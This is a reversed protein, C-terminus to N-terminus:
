LQEEARARAAAEQEARIQSLQRYRVLDEAYQRKVKDRADMKLLLQRQTAAIKEESYEIQQALGGPVNVGNDLYRTKATDELKAKKDEEEAINKQLLKIVSDVVALREQEAEILEAETSYTLMLVDDNHKQEARKRAEERALRDAARQKRQQEAREQRIQEPTKSAEQTGLVRGSPTLTQFRKKSQQPPLRDSYRIEGNEDVWKYLGAAQVPMLLLAPMGLAVFLKLCPFKTACQRNQNFMRTKLEVCNNPKGCRFRM